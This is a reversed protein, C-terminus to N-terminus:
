ASGSSKHMPGYYRVPLFSVDIMNRSNKTVLSDGNWIKPNASGTKHVAGVRQRWHVDRFHFFARWEQFVTVTAVELNVVHWSGAQM